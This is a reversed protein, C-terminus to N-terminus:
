LSLEDTHPDLDLSGNGLPQPDAPTEGRVIAGDQRIRDQPTLNYKRFLYQMYSDHAGALATAQARLEAAQRELGMAQALIKSAQLNQNWVVSFYQTDAGDIREERLQDLFKPDVVAM